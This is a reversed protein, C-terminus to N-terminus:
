RFDPIQLLAVSFAVRAFGHDLGAYTDSLQDDYEHLNRLVVFVAVKDLEM